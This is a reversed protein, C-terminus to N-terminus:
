AEHHGLGCDTEKGSKGIESFRQPHKSDFLLFGM